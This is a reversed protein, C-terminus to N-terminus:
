NGGKKMIVEHLMSKIENWFAFCVIVIVLINNLIYTVDAGIISSLFGTYLIGLPVILNASFSLIAFFRSQINLPVQSQFFSTMPVNVLITIFGLLVEFFLMVGFFLFANSHILFVSTFGILIMILSNLIFLKSIHKRFEIKSNRAIFIGSLIVGVSFAVSVLGFISAPLHYKQIVIGPNIVEESSAVFFNLAMILLFYKLISKEERIFNLGIKFKQTFSEVVTSESAMNKNELPIMAIFIVGLLYLVALLLIVGSFGFVGYVLTGVMPAAFVSLNDLISKIGNYKELEKKEILETFLVKSSLDLMMSLISVLIAFSVLYIFDHFGFNLIMFEISCLIALFLISFIAVKKKSYKEIWVGMAPTILVSPLMTIMFFLGSLSLSHTIKLIYLPFVVPLVAGAFESLCRSIFLYKIKYL